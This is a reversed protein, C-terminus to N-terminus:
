VQEPFEKLLERRARERAFIVRLHLFLDAFDDRGLTEEADEWKTAYQNSLGDSLDGIILSKFIDAPSLDLGRANMVSFIRHASDLSPTSVVVLITRESLMNVLELRREESWESLEARLARANGQLAAQADTRLADPKLALLDKVIGTTQVYLRFFAADKPRLALRPKPALKRIKNGPEAILKELDVRLEADNTLDRLVALLITLTTLRQQGDIVEAKPVEKTKVLVVSGLFYPEDPNRDLAEVLDELLQTAQEIEWAYPRQYDPIHFDYDSCFVKHLPVEHAELQQM